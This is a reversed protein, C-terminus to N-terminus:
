KKKLSDILNLLFDSTGIGLKKLKPFLFGLISPILFAVPLLFAYNKKVTNENTKLMIFIFGICIFVVITLLYKKNM